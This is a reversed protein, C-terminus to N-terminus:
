RNSHRIWGQIRVVTVWPQGCFALSPVQDRSRRRSIPERPPRISALLASGRGAREAVRARVGARGISYGNARLFVETLPELVSISDAFASLLGEIVLAYLIGVGLGFLKERRVLLRPKPSPTRGMGLVGRYSPTIVVNRGTV